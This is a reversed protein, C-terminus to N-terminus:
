PDESSRSKDVASHNSATSRLESEVLFPALKSSRIPGVNPLDQLEKADRPAQSKSADLTQRWARATKKGIDPLLRLEEESATKLDVFFQPPRDLEPTTKSFWLLRAQYFMVWVILLTAITVM